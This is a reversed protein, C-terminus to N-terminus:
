DFAIDLDSPDIRPPHLSGSVFMAPDGNLTISRKTQGVSYQKGAYDSYRPFGKITDTALVLSSLASVLALKALM